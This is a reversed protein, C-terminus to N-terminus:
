VSRDCSVKDRFETYRICVSFRTFNYTLIVFRKSEGGGHFVSSPRLVTPECRNIERCPDDAPSITHYAMIGTELSRLTAPNNSDSDIASANADRLCRVLRWVEM